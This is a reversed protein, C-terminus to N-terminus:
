YFDKYRSHISIIGKFWFGRVACQLIERQLDPTLMSKEDTTKVTEEYESIQKFMKEISVEDFNAHGASFLHVFGMRFVLPHYKEELAKIKKMNAQAEESLKLVDGQKRWFVKRYYFFLRSKLLGVGELM